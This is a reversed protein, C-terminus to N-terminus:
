NFKLYLLLAPGHSLRNTAPKERRLGMNAGLAAWTLNTTSLTVSPCTKRRTRRNEGTLIMGGSSWIWEHIMQPISLPDTLPGTGCLCDWGVALIFFTFKDRQKLVACNLRIPSHLCRANKVKASCWLIWSWTEAAKGGPFMRLYGSSLGPPCWLRDPRKSSFCTGAHFRVGTTCRYVAELDIVNVIVCSWLLSVSEDEIWVFM